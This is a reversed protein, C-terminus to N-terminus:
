SPSYTIWAGIAGCCWQCQRMGSISDEPVADMEGGVISSHIAPMVVKVQKSLM